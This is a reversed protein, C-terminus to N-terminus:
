FFFFPRVACFGVTILGFWWLISGYCFRVMLFFGVSFGVGFVALWWRRGSRAAMWDGGISWGLSGDSEFSMPSWVGVM